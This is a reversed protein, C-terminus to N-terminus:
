CVLLHKDSTAAITPSDVKWLVHLISTDNILVNLDSNNQQLM